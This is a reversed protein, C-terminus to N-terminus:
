SRSWPFASERETEKGDKAEERLERRVQDVIGKPIVREVGADTELYQTACRACIVVMGSPVARIPNRGALPAWWRRERELRVAPKFVVSHPFACEPCPM